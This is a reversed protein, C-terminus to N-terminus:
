NEIIIKKTTKKLSMTEIQLIYIGKANNSFDCVVKNSNTNDNYVMKGAIDFLEINSIEEKSFINVVGNSPNPYITIGNALTQNSSTTAAGVIIINDIKSKGDAAVDEDNINLNSTMIWRLYILETNNCEFPLPIDDQVGTVWDNATTVDGDVVDIWIGEEGIKYQLKFEKPGPFTGGATFMASALINEYGITNLSIEWAKTDMGGDWGIASASKTSEGNKSFDIEGTGGETFIKMNENLVNSLDPLSDDLTGTPFTWKAITDNQALTYGATIMVAFLLTFIKKM